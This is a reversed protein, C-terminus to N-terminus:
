SVTKPIDTNTKDKNLNNANLKEQIVNNVDKRVIDVAVLIANKIAKPSSNGHGIICVGNIGLLVAGGHDASDLSQKFSRFAGKMLLAGLAAIPNGHIKQKIRNSMFSSTSEAFKLVVNGVFGDCVVVDATGKLIDRGEVNGCFNLGSNDLMKHSAITLENGKSQEEGISLLGVKPNKVKLIFRSYLSGMIGFQYLHHAKCDSNAGVDLVLVVGEESPFLAAIAPRSVGKLRGLTFLSATMVAGTNGASVFADVKGEKQLTLGVNISSKKKHRVADIPSDSMDIIEPADVIEIPLKESKLSELERQIREANGVLILHVHPQLVRYCMVVGAVISFPANDGGMADIAIRM